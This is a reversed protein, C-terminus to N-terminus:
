HSQLSRRSARFLGVASHVLLGPGDTVSTKSLLEMEIQDKVIIVALVLRVIANSVLHM